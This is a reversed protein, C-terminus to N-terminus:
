GTFDLKPLLGLSFSEISSGKLYSVQNSATVYLYM